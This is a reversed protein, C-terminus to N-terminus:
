IKRYQGKHVGCILLFVIWSIILALVSFIVMQVQTIHYWISVVLYQSFQDPRRELLNNTSINGKFVNHKMKPYFPNVGSYTCCDEMLHLLGGGFLGIGIIMFNFQIKFIFFTLGIIITLILSFIFVGAITHLIGRHRKKENFIKLLVPYIFFENIADFAFLVSEKHKATRDSADSDPLFAGLFLGILFLMSLETEFLLFPSVLILGTLVSIQFHHRGKM